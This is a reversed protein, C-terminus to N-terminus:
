GFLGVTMRCLLAKMVDYDIFDHNDFVYEHAFSQVENMAIHVKEPLAESDVGLLLLKESIRVTLTKELEIFRANVGEDTAALSHLTNHLRENTQHIKIVRDVIAPIVSSFDIPATLRDIIDFVPKAVNEIYLDLVCLLIDRKDLFYGYVIGTSVGAVKAIEATNTGYYGVETFVKYGANIIKNKTEISRGQKPQRVKSHENM